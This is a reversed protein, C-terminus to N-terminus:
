LDERSSFPKKKKKIDDDWRPNVHPVAYEISRVCLDDLNDCLKLAADIETNKSKRSM